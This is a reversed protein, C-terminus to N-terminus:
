SFCQGEDNLRLEKILLVLGIQGKEKLLGSVTRIATKNGLEIAEKLQEILLGVTGDDKGVEEPAMTKGSALYDKVPQLAKALIRMKEKGIDGSLDIENPTKIPVFQDDRDIVVAIYPWIATFDGSYRELQLGVYIYKVGDIEDETEKVDMYVPIDIANVIQTLEEFSLKKDYEDPLNLQNVLGDVSLFFMGTNFYPYLKPLEEKSMKDVAESTEKTFAPKEVIQTTKRGDLYTIDAYLGGREGRNDGLLIMFVPEPRKEKKAKSIEEEFLGKLEDSVKGAPNNMHSYFIFRTGNRKLEALVNSLVIWKIFDWHGVPNLVLGGKQTRLPDGAKGMQTAIGRDLAELINQM